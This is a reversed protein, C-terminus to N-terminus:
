AICRLGFTMRMEEIDSVYHWPQMMSGWLGVGRMLILDGPNSRIPVAATRHEDECIYLAGGAYLVFLAIIDRCWVGDLHPDIGASGKPYQQMRLDNFRPRSKFAQPSKSWLHDCIFQELRRAVPHATSHPPMKSVVRYDQKVQRKGVVPAARRWPYGKSEAIMCHVAEDSLLHPIVAIGHTRLDHVIDVPVHENFM